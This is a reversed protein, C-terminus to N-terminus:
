DGDGSMPLEFQFVSGNEVDPSAWLRGHHAEIISRCISLGMGMGRSKTTFLPDFIRKLDDPAIGTGTDKVAVLVHNAENLGTKIRLLRARDNVGDMAEAANMILNLLVQQLQVREGTVPPLQQELDLQVAVQHKQLDIRVIGLVEAIVRNMDLLTREHGDKKFMARIGKVVDSARLGADVIQALAARARETDPAPASLWRQAASARAVIGTLPQNVEHAISASLAGATAIRNVRALESMTNRTAIEASRRRQHEYVLWGILATQVVLAAGALLIQRRYLDWMSPKRYRVESGEPLQSEAVHWRQLQRWDFIPRLASGTTVPISSAEEGELIRLAISAADHGIQAPRLVLGGAAGTGLFTELDVIIPQNAVEAVLPLVEAPVYAGDRDASIGIYFIATHDPLASVRRRVEAIPLGMLNIFELDRSFLPIEKAFQSFYHDGELSDGVVAFRKLDPVVARAAAVMDSLTMQFVTGTANPPLSSTSTSSASVSAFVVPVSPWLADRLNLGYDLAGPGIVVIVGIPKDRYKERFHNELSHRYAAGNFRDLDLNEVYFSIPEGANESMFSRMGTIIADQWPDLSTLQDLILVSRPLMEDVAAAAPMVAAILWILITVPLPIKRM